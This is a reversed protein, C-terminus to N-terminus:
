IGSEPVLAVMWSLLDAIVKDYKSVQRYLRETKEGADSHESNSLTNAAFV